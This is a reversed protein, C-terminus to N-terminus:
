DILLLMSPILLSTRDRLASRRARKIQSTTLHIQDIDPDRNFSMLNKPDGDGASETDELEDEFTHLLNFYHGLEHALTSTSRVTDVGIAHSEEPHPLSCDGAAYGLDSYYINIWTNAPNWHEFELQRRFHRQTEIRRFQPADWYIIRDIRFTFGGEKWIVNAADVDERAAAESVIPNGSDDLILWIRLQIFFISQREVTGIVDAM